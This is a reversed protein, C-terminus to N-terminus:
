RIIHSLCKLCKVIVQHKHRQETVTYYLISVKSVQSHSQHKHRQETVTYYSISVKSVQSHRQHKHRQETVTYYSISAKSVQSHSQHKHRQETVTYYSISVKSVQSHRQHKHRQQTVMDRSMQWGYSSITSSLNVPVFIRLYDFNSFVFSLQDLDSKVRKSLHDILCDM